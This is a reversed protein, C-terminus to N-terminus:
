GSSYILFKAAIAKQFHPANKLHIWQRKFSPVKTRRLLHPTVERILTITDPWDFRVITAVLLDSSSYFAAFGNGLVPSSVCVLDNKITKSNVRHFVYKSQETSPTVRNQRGMKSTSKFMISSAFLRLLKKNECAVNLTGFDYKSIKTNIFM